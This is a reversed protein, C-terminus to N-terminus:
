VSLGVSSVLAVSSGMVSSNVVSAGYVVFTLVVKVGSCVSSGVVVIVDGVGVDDEAVGVGGLIGGGSPLVMSILLEKIPVKMKKRDKTQALTTIIMTIFGDAIM